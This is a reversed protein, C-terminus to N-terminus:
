TKLLELVDEWTLKSIAEDDCSVIKKVLGKKRNQMEAIKEEITGLTILKYSSVNNKQGMRHVRDTAQSEVAPNWWMDYHIVTDAGVLNLGTGGAKLSVLFIPISADENFKNVVDLRNKTSGDLYSYSIGMHNLDERMIQLMRTYQSFIVTKHGGEILTRLLEFLMDYKSSDGVEAREKAFIAPHCCIQKLRTLTALVHIQVRDFGDREVLKVLEDRASQAYSRYLERQTDSLQCHYINESIPPLDKLVDAKMRRLIFPSVKKKLYEINKAQEFGSVRVYKEVFRDFSSLFGPMLFDFLSWMEELSNEIPTGSLILRYQAQLKKSSKANRTGRNKIHQAEDLIAYAFPIEKYYEIDKQLLTYSTIVVDYNSLTEILKKRYTPIGDVILVRAKPHFKTFEEKWNYLLSTPCIIISEAKSKKNNQSLTIIAQLTKGLGMDDALIGSLYMTRLRELWQVGEKQYNRLKAKIEEPVPTFTFSKEGLIQQRIEKLRKSMSFKIPLERFLTADITVLSWLPCEITHSDLVEIRMEDFLQIVGSIRDFDLVIIKSPKGTEKKKKGKALTQEIFSRKSAMCEWLMDMKVGKLAGEVKLELLYHDVKDTHTLHLEFTSKDYIFRDLLNQPCNFTVRHKNRPIVDTMFEVIKKDSKAVHIGQEENFLFDQFLDEVIKREEVLNRALIGQEAVFSNVDDYSLQSSSAPIKYKDYHFFLKAELEGDLYTLECSAEVAGVFPMTVFHEISRQNCVEAHKALEPLANEVFTGFLPEPITVDRVKLLHQLHIRTIYPSFRYYVEGSLMGPKACELLFADELEVLKRDLNIVPELLIKSIPPKMYELNFRLTAPQLAFRLPTDFGNVYVGPLPSLEEESSFSTGAWKATSREHLDALIMGFVEKGLYAVRQAKESSPPKQFFAQDRIIRMVGQIMEDFSDLSFCYRRGGMFIPEEFQLAQLFSKVNPVYLPKSRFPLRLALQIEVVKSTKYEQSTPLGFILAVEARDVEKKEEPRFFPSTSLLLASSTYEQLLQTQNLEEQKQSAKAQAEKVQELIENKADKNIDEKDIVEELDNEKSFSVLIQDINQELYFLLASLHHCDYNYPCDCDSDIVECEQRDIEIESEYTNEYQGVIRGSIRVTKHDLHLIKASAVKKEEFLNKGEKIINSAFDQKLKRFNLM